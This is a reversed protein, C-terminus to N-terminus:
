YINDRLSISAKTKGFIWSLNNWRLQSPAFADLLEQRELAKASPRAVHHEQPATAPIHREIVGSPSDTIPSMHEIRKWAAQAIRPSLDSPFEGRQRRFQKAADIWRSQQVGRQTGELRGSSILITSM